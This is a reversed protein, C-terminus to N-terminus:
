ARPANERGVCRGAAIRVCPQDWWVLESGWWCAAARVTLRRGVVLAGDRRQEATRGWRTAEAPTSQEAALWRLLAPGGDALTGRRQLLFLTEGARQDVHRIREIRHAALVGRTQFVVAAFAGPLIAPVEASSQVRVPPPSPRADDPARADFRWGFPGGRDPRLETLLARLVGDIPGALDPGDSPCPTASRPLNM